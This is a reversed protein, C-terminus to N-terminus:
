RSSLVSMTKNAAGPSDSMTDRLNIAQIQHIPLQVSPPLFDKISTMSTLYYKRTSPALAKWEPTRKYSEILQTLNM